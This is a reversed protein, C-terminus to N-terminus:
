LERDNQLHVLQIIPQNWYESTGDTIYGALCHHVPACCKGGTTYTSMKYEIYRKGKM